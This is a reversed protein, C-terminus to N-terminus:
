VQGSAVADTNVVDHKTTRSAPQGRVRAGYHDSALQDTGHGLTVDEAGLIPTDSFGEATTQSSFKRSPRPILLYGHSQTTVNTLRWRGRSPAKPSTEMTSIPQPRPLLTHNAARSPTRTAPMSKLGVAM